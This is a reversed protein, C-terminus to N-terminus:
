WDLDQEYGTAILVDGYISKFQDKVRDTFYHRWDGAIGKRQHMAPDEDGPQRGTVAEFTNYKIIDHLRDRPVAIECYAIIQEFVAFEDALLEEYRVHLGPGGIWSQQIHANFATTLPLALGVGEPTALIAQRETATLRVLRQVAPQEEEGGILRLLGEELGVRCLVDRTHQQSATSISHSFKMSFYLSVLTDRLDRIVVFTRHRMPQGALVAELTRRAVYVTPYVAGSQFPAQLLHGAYPQPTVFRAPASHKLIEAVWQSGAKYHTVHFVTPSSFDM